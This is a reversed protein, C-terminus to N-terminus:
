PAGATPEAPTTPEAPQPPEAPEAPVAVECVFIPPAPEEFECGLGLEECTPIGVPYESSPYPGTIM